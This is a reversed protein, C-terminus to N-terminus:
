RTQSEAYSSCTQRPGAALLAEFLDALRRAGTASLHNKDFYLVAENEVLVCSHADCLREHPRVAQLGYQRVLDEYADIIRQNRRDYLAREVRADDAAGGRLVQRVVMTPVDNPAEPVPFVLVVTKGASQLREITESLGAMVFETRDMDEPLPADETGIIVPARGSEGFGVNVWGETYLAMRMSLVVVEIQDQSLISALSARYFGDCRHDRDQLYWRFNAVPPCGLRAYLAVSDGARDVAEAVGPVLAAAHSDGWLAVRPMRSREGYVCPNSWDDPTTKGEVCADYRPDRDHRFADLALAAAPLRQPLGKSLYIAGSAALLVAGATASGLFLPVASRRAAPYRFPREVFRWSAWALALSIAFLPAAEGATPMRMASYVFFVIVPWHWLYLSYSIQGLGVPLRTSLLRGVWTPGFAGAQVVLATGLCPLLAAWGPFPTAEDILVTAALIMLVGLLAAAERVPRADLRPGVGLALLSGIGLEWARWPLLYFAAKPRSETTAVSLVFSALATVAIAILLTRPWKALALFLLPVVIYFQEEIGLSWTHLLPKTHSAADFYGGELFFLVNALFATAAGAARALLQFDRPMFLFAAVLLTAAIVTFLAPLIRRARREYFRIISFRGERCERAIISTILYGSVVFFVDVGAFGGSAFPLGLHFAVVPLVALARLGDIDPRYRLASM